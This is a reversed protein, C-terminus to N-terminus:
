QHSNLVLGNTWDCTYVYTQEPIGNNKVGYILNIEHNQRIILESILGAPVLPVTQNTPSYQLYKGSNLFVFSEIATNEELSHFGNISSFSAHLNKYQNTSSASQPNSKEFNSKCLSLDVIATITAGSLFSNKLEDFTNITGATSNLTYISIALVHAKLIKNM